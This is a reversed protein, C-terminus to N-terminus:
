LWRRVILLWVVSPALWYLFWYLWPVFTWSEGRVPLHHFGAWTPYPAHTVAEQEEKSAEVRMMAHAFLPKLAYGPTCLLVEATRTVAAYTTEHAHMWDLWERDAVRTYHIVKWDLLAFLYACVLIYIGLKM